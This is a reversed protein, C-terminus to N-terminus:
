KDHLRRLLTEFKWLKTVHAGPMLAHLRGAYTALPENKQRPNGKRVDDLWATPKLREPEAPRTQESKPKEVHELPEPRRVEGIPKTPPTVTKAPPAPRAKHEVVSAAQRDARWQAAAELTILTRTGVKMEGPGEGQKKLKYFFGESIGHAECFEPISLALRPTSPRPRVTAFQTRSKPM